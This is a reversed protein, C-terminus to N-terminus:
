FELAGEAEMANELANYAAKAKKVLELLEPVDKLQEEAYGEMFWYYFGEYDIKSRVEDLQKDNLYKGM